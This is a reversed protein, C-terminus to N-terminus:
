VGCSCEPPLDRWTGGPGFKGERAWQLTCLLSRKWDSSCMCAEPMRRKYRYYPCCIGDRAELQELLAQMKLVVQVPESDIYIYHSPGHLQNIEGINLYWKLDILQPYLVISHHGRNTSKEITKFSIKKPMPRFLGKQTTRGYAVQWLAEAVNGRGEDALKKIYSKGSYSYDEQAILESLWDSLQVPKDMRKVEEALLLCQQYSDRPWSESEKSTHLGQLFTIILRKLMNSDDLSAWTIIKKITGFYLTRFDPFLHRLETREYYAVSAEELDELDQCWDSFLPDSNFLSEIRVFCQAVALLEESLLIRDAIVSLQKNLEGLSFWSKEVESDWTRSCVITNLNQFRAGQLYRALNKAPTDSNKIHEREHVLEAAEYSKEVEIVDKDHSDIPWYRIKVLPQTRPQRLNSRRCLQPYPNYVIQPDAEFFGEFKTGPQELNPCLFSFGQTSM